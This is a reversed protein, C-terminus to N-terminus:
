HAESILLSSNSPVAGSSEVSASPGRLRLGAVALLDLAVARAADPRGAERAAVAMRVLRGRDRLLVAIEQALRAPTAEANAVCVAAGARALAEANVRQHDDAAFPYPVLLGPRGIACLEGLAGAGARGVVLEAAGLAAAMDEIFPVVRVREAIGLETYLRRVADAHAPGCQHVVELSAALTQVARPVAENLTKAGQSGGLVLVKLPGEGLTYPLPAFGPRLPVGVRRARGRRFHREAAEPVRRLRARCAARGASESLGMVSNPELLALPVGLSWAALSVPGAAYGGVALVAAPNLRKVLARGEPLSLAARTAGRM